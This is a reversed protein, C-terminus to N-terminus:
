QIYEEDENSQAVRSKDKRSKDLLGNVFVGLCLDGLFLGLLHRFSLGPILKGGIIFSVLLHFWFAEGKMALMLLLSGFSAEGIAVETVTRAAMELILELFGFVLITNVDGFIWVKFYFLLMSLALISYLKVVKRLALRWVIGSPTLESEPLINAQALSFHAPRECCKKKSLKKKNSAAVLAREYPSAQSSAFLSRVRVQPELGSIDSECATKLDERERRVDSGITPTLHLVLCSLPRLFSSWM